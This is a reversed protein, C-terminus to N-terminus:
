GSKSTMAGALWHFIKPTAVIEPKQPQEHLFDTKQRKIQIMSWM